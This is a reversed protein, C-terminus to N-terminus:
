RRVYLLFISPVSLVSVHASVMFLIISPATSIPTSNVCSSASFSKSWMNLRRQVTAPLASQCSPVGSTEFVVIRGDKHLNINELRIIPNKLEVCAQFTARIREAEETPMFDFLTKGIVECSMYGLLDKVKPSSYTYTGNQDIEWIWDSIDEVLARYRDKYEDTGEKLKEERVNKFSEKEITTLIRDTIQESSITMSQLLGQKEEARLIRVIAPEKSM